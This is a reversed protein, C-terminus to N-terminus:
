RRRRIVVPMGESPAFTIGRRVVRSRYRPAKEFDFRQLITGLVIKMEYMAFAMGICRRIGGGFPLHEYPSIKRDLFRTPDFREPDTWVDPRRHALYICPAVMVGRPMDVGGIRTPEKLRRAVIPIIPNLRLTEKIFAELYVLKNVREPDVSAGFVSELEERITTVSRPHEILWHFAWSLTTATTEHGALLLTLLEDRLEVDSMPRGEEHRAQLLLALVDHRSSLDAQRWRRILKFLTRDLDARIRQFRRGQPTISGVTEGLPYLFIIWPDTAAALLERLAERLEVLLPGEAGFITRLIVDLTIRQMPPQMPETAGDCFDSMVSETVERMVRGYLHIREGTFPPLLLRRERLHRPGDLLLLSNSGVLPELLVNAEGAHLGDSSGTFVDKIADPHSVFIVHEFGAINLTFPDGYKRSCDNMLAIPHRVWNWLNLM